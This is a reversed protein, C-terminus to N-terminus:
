KQMENLQTTSYSSQITPRNFSSKLNSNSFNGIKEELEIVNYCDRSDFNGEVSAIFDVASFMTKLYENFDEFSMNELYKLVRDRDVFVAGNLYSFVNDTASVENSKRISYENILRRKASDFIEKDIGNERLDLIIESIKDFCKKIKKPGTQLQFHAFCYDNCELTYLESHYSLSVGEGRFKNFVYSGIGGGVLNEVVHQFALEQELDEPIGDRVKLLYNITITNIDESPKLYLINDKVYNHVDEKLDVIGAPNSVLKPLMLTDVIEKIRKQPIRTAVSFIFNQKNFFTDMYEKFDEPTIKRLSSKTGLIKNKKMSSQETNFFSKLITSLADEDGVECSDDYMDEDSSMRMEEYIVKMENDMLNKDFKRNCLMKMCRKIAKEFDDNHVEFTIMIAEKSTFANENILINRASIQMEDAFEQSGGISLMHELFHALGEKGEPDCQAGCVFGIAISSVDSNMKKYLIRAGDEAELVELKAM